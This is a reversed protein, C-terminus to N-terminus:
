SSAVHLSYRKEWGKREAITYKELMDLLVHVENEIAVEGRLSSTAFDQTCCIMTAYACACLYYM